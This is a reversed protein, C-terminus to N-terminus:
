KQPEIKLAAWAVEADEAFRLLNLEEPAIMRAEALAEWNIIRRWYVEDVLVIPVRGLRNSQRLTLLEFLEDLTGFGGPFVVLANARMALHLKRIAFYHFQFTLDPTTYHNPVQEEPLRINFGISPAGTDHAGRSAAEMIGPGGGTAIVNDRVGAVPHLAGGRESTIRGFRRAEEYWAPEQGPGDERIRSSGFVVVTSRIGAARLAEDAKTCEIQLRVGRMTPGLLFDRDFLALRYASSQPTARRRTM